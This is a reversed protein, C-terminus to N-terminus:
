EISAFYLTAMETGTNTIAMSWITSRKLFVGPLSNTAEIFPELNSEQIGNVEVSVKKDTELYVLKKAFAYITISPNTLGTEPPLTDSSYIEVLNDQVGTVEFTRQSITNFGSGLRIKDGIQVGSASYVRVQDAFGAGLLVSEATANSNEVTISNSTKALVKFRGQNGVSFQSGVLVEDGVQTSSFNFSTGGISTITALNGAVTLGVQTTADSSIARLTRFSPSTGATNRIVYTNTTNTKLSISFVSTLDSTLTRQGAFLQRTEGPALCFEVSQPKSASIGQGQRTWKFFSLDPNNTPALDKFANLYILFNFKM